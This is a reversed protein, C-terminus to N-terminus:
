LEDVLALFAAYDADSLLDRLLATNEEPLKSLAVLLKGALNQSLEAALADRQAEDAADLDITQPSDPAAYSSYGVPPQGVLYDSPQAAPERNQTLSTPPMLSDSVSYLAGSQAAQAFDRAASEDFLLSFGLDAQKGSLRELKVSGSLVGSGDSLTLTLDPTLTSTVTQTKGDATTKVVRKVSGTLPRAGGAERGSLDHTLTAATTVGTDPDTIKVTGEGKLTFVGEGASREYVAEIVRNDRPARSKTMEFKYTDVRLGGDAQAFAWQYSIARKQGDPFTVNGKIYVAMDEGGEASQYLGVIFGKGYTMGSLKERLAADMGCGLVQAILPSLEAGQEPTLRAIRSWKSHGVNKIKYNAKKETAYPLIADTLAQYCGEAEQIASFLDFAPEEERKGSLADMASAASVLTRNPLLPTTLATGGDTQAETFVAVPDGAVCLRLSTEGERAEASVSLGELAANFMEVTSEGYPLLADLRATATFRLDDVDWYTDLSHSLGWEDALAAGRALTTGQALLLCAALASILRKVFM